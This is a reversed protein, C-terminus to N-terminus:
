CCSRGGKRDVRLKDGSPFNPSAPLYVERGQALETNYLANEAMNKIMSSSLESDAKHMDEFLKAYTDEIARTREETSIKDWNNKIGQLEKQHTELSKRLNPNVNHTKELKSLSTITKKLSGDKDVSHEFYNKSYNSSPELINGDDGTPGYLSHHRSPLRDYPSREFFKAVKPDKDATRITDSGLDPKSAAGLGTKVQRAPNGAQEINQYQNLFKVLNDTLKSKGLVSRNGFGVDKHFVYLKKNGTTGVNSALEYKEIMEKVANERESGSSSLAKKFDKQLERLVTEGEPSIKKEDAAKQIKKDFGSSEKSKGWTAEKM